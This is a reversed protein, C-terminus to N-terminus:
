SAVKDAPISGNPLAQIAALLDYAELKSQPITGNPLDNINAELNYAALKEQSIKESGTSDNIQDILSDNESTIVQKFISNDSNKVYLGRSSDQTYLFYSESFGKQPVPVQAHSTYVKIKSM